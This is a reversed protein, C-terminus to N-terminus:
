PVISLVPSFPAGAAQTKNMTYSLTRTQYGACEAIVTYTGKAPIVFPYVATESGNLTGNSTNSFRAVLQGTIIDSVTITVNALPYIDTGSKGKIIGFLGVAYGAKPESDCVDGFNDSDSDVQTPNAVNLCNDCANGLSDGDSNLQDSNSVSPCNDPGNESLTFGTPATSGFCAVTQATSSERVGDRDVDFYATNRWKTVDNPACDLSDLVGDGDRDGSSGTGVFDLVRNGIASPSGQYTSTSNGVFVDSSPFVYGAKQAQVTGFSLAPVHVLAYIGRDNSVDSIGAASVTVGSIPQGSSDTVRGSIIEGAGQPFINYIIMNLASFNYYTGVNPLNYWADSNGGWGMNIHHYPTTADFGYGDSVVAHGGSGLIGLMVPYGANLNTNIGNGITQDNISLAGLYSGLYVSQAYNFVYMLTDSSTSMAAGSGYSSYEMNAAVGVDYLLAGIAQRQVESVGYYPLLPMDSWRYPGGAGDGGRLSATQAHDDVYITFSSTGVATTPWQHFRMVQATATAVCGSVYHNPTYYNYISDAQNWQSQVLPDVRPDSLSYIGLISRSPNKQLLTQWKKRAKLLSAHASKTFRGKAKRQAARAYQIRSKLDKSLLAGLPHRSSSDFRTARSFAVIPEVLDDASVVVFGQPKLFVVFYHIVGARSRYSKVGKIKTGLKTGLPKSDHQLWLKVIEKAQRANTPAAFASESFITFFLTLISFAYLLLSHPSQKRSSSLVQM